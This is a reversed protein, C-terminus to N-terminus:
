WRLGIGRIQPHLTGIRLTARWLPVDTGLIRWCLEDFLEVESDIHPGQGLIWREVQGGPIPAGRGRHTAEIRFFEEGSRATTAIDDTVTSNTWQTPEQAGVVLM